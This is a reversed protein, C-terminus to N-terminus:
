FNDMITDVGLHERRRGTRPSVLTRRERDQKGTDNGWVFSRVPKNARKSSSATTRVKGKTQM